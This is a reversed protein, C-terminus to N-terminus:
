IYVLILIVPATTSIPDSDTLFVPAQQAIEPTPEVGAPGEM